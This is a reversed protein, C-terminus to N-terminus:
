SRAFCAITWRGDEQQTKVAKEMPEGVLREDEVSLIRVPLLKGAATEGVPAVVEAYNATYGRLWGPRDTGEEFLVEEVRGTMARLVEAAAEAAGAAMAAARAQKVGQPLHGGMRDAATDHRRSYPFVHTKLFGAQRVFAASAAFEAETEGPFGVIVDTTIAAGLFFRRILALKEAFGEPTYRRGMRRLTATCGSQLSLHFHPCFGEVQALEALTAEDIAEPDLSGLRVRAIGPVAAQRVAETLTFGGELDRGYLSLNIGVLVIERFGREALAHAERSISALTRSRPTGRLKPIICYTCFADCGDQIKLVARTHGQQGAASLDDFVTDLQFRASGGGSAIRAVAARDGTGCVATVGEIGSLAAPDSQAYCGAAIISAGPHARTLKRVAQRSKREAEATVACTNVVYVDAPEHEEVMTFGAAELAEAMARSDYWNVKCGLTVIAARRPESM